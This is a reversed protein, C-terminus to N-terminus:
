VEKVSGKHIQCHFFIFIPRGEDFNYHTVKSVGQVFNTSFFIMVGLERM